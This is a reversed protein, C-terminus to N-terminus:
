ELDIYGGLALLGEWVELDEEVASTLDAAELKRVKAVLESPGPAPEARVPAVQAEVWAPDCAGPQLALGMAAVAGAAQTKSRLWRLAGASLEERTRLRGQGDTLGFACVRQTKAQALMAERESPTLLSYNQVSRECSRCHRQRAGGEMESWSLSCPHTVRVPM